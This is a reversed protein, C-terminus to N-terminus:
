FILLDYIYLSISLHIEVAADIEVEFALCDVLAPTLVEVWLTTMM